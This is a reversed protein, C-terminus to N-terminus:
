INYQEDTLFYQHNKFKEPLTYPSVIMSSLDIDRIGHNGTNTQTVIEIFESITIDILDESSDLGFFENTSAVFCCVSINVNQLVSLYM